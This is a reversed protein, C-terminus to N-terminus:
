KIENLAKLYQDFTIKGKEFMKEISAVKAENLKEASEIEAKKVRESSEIEALKLKTESEIKAKTVEPSETAVTATEATQKKKEQYEKRHAEREIANLTTANELEEQSILGAYGLLLAREINRESCQTLEYNVTWNGTIINVDIDKLEVFPVPSESKTWLRKLCFYAKEGFQRIENYDQGKTAELNNVLQVIEDKFLHSGNLTITDGETIANSSVIGNVIDDKFKWWEVKPNVLKTFDDVSYKREIRPKLGAILLDINQCLADIPEGKHKAWLKALTAKYDFKEDSPLEKRYASLCRQFRNYNSSSRVQKKKPENVKKKIVKSKKPKKM